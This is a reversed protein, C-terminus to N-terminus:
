FYTCDIKRKVWALVPSMSEDQQRSKQAIEAESTSIRCYASVHVWFACRSHSTEACKAHTWIREILDCLSAILTSEELDNSNNSIGSDEDAMKEVLIKKTKNKVEKLLNEVVRYNTQTAFKETQIRMPSNGMLEAQDLQNQELYNNVFKENDDNLSPTNLSNKRNSSQHNKNSHVPSYVKFPSNLQKLNHVNTSKRNFDDNLNLDYNNLSFQPNNNLLQNKKILNNLVITQSNNFVEDLDYNLDYDFQEEIEDVLNDTDIICLENNTSISLNQALKHASEDIYNAFLQTKLFKSLFTRIMVPQESLFSISDFKVADKKSMMVYREYNSLLNSSLKNAFMQRISHNFKIEDLYSFKSIMNHKMALKTIRTIAQSKNVHEKLRLDSNIFNEVEEQLESLFKPVLFTYKNKEYTKVDDEDSSQDNQDNM